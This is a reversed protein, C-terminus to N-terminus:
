TRLRPQRGDGAQKTEDASAVAVTEAFIGDGGTITGANRRLDDKLTSL